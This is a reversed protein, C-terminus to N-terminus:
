TKTPYEPVTGISQLSTKTIFRSDEHTEEPDTRITMMERERRAVLSDIQIRLGAGRPVGETRQGIDTNPLCRIQTVLDTETKVTLWLAM